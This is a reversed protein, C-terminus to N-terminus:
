KSSPRRFYVIDGDNIGADIMSDGVVTAAHRAGAEWLEPPIQRRGRKAEDFLVVNPTAAVPFPRVNRSPPRKQRVGRTASEHKDVYETVTRLALRIDVVAEDPYLSQMTLGMAALVAEVDAVRANIKGRLLRSFKSPSMGADFAITKRAKGSAKVAGNLREIVDM